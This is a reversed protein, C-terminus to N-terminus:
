AIPTRPSSTTCISARRPTGSEIAAECLTATATLWLLGRTPARAGGCAREYAGRAGAPDGADLHALPLVCRWAVADPGGRGLREIQPLIEDLRGQERRIAVLQATFHAQADADGGREALRVSERALREAEDLDGGLGTLVGRWALASHRYLPQRLELAIRELELQRERAHKIEGLEVLDYLLWHRVLAGLEPDELEGAVALMEEGIRRREAAHEVDLLAAHRGLLAAALATPEALRRAMGLAANARELAQEPAPAFVLNEALRALVRVRLTSDGPGLAALARELLEAYAVDPAAPAYFRGGAGLAARALRDPSGLEHALELAQAFTSRPDPLSAQWRAAGISLLLDCRAAADDRGVLPLIGLAREYHEVAAEYAHSAQAAAGAQLSFVIAKDAGGVERAQFYHHALQAPHLPLASAELAEAIRHHLRLRRSVIPREYLTERVLSHAFAFRDVTEPVEVVLGAAVAAELVDLLEDQERDVAVAELEVLNFDNGLVAALTLVELSARPLQDLRRDILQKVAPPVEQELATRPSRLLEQIFFPNGGTEECLRQVSEDDVTRRGTRAAILGAVETPRLGVLRIAELEAGRGLVALRDGGRVQRDDFTAVILLRSQEARRLVHRLMLMTPADASQLDELILLLGAPQAAHLLLRVVAEFLHHRNRDREGLRQPPEREDLVGLEPVLAALARAAAPPVAAASVLDCRHAAYHRLAEVFAQYPWVTEEDARGCLVVGGGEHVVAAFRAALRTKGIGPEGSVVVLGASNGQWRDGLRQLAAGRGVFPQQDIRALVAPLPVAATPGLSPGAAPAVAALYAKADM